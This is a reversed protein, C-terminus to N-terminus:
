AQRRLLRRSTPACHPLPHAATPRRPPRRNPILAPLSRLAQLGPRRSAQPPHLRTAPAARARARMRAAAPCAAAARWAPLCPQSPQWPAHAASRGPAPMRSLISALRAGGTGITKGVRYVDRVSVGKRMKHEVSRLAAGCLPPRAPPSPTLCCLALVLASACAAACCSRGAAARPAVCRELQRPRCCCPRPTRVCPLWLPWAAAAGVCLACEPLVDPQASHGATQKEASKGAAKQAAAAPAGGDTSGCNGMPQPVHLRSNPRDAAAPPLPPGAPRSAAPQAARLSGAVRTPSM